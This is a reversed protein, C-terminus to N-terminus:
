RASGRDSPNAQNLCDYATTLTLATYLGRMTHPQDPNARGDLIYAHDLLDQRAQQVIPDCPNSM